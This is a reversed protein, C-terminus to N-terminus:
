QLYWGESKLEEDIYKKMSKPNVANWFFNIDKQTFYGLIALISLFLLGGLGSVFFLEFWRDITIALQLQWMIAVVLSSDIGGSLFAGVPVDSIMRLKISETLLEDLEKIYDNESYVKEIKYIM